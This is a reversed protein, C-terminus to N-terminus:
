PGTGDDHVGAPLLHRCATDASRFQPSYRGAEGTIGPVNGLNLQGQPGPDLMAIDHSRMCSAYRVLAPLAAAVAQSTGAQKAELAKAILHECAGLAARNQATAAPVAFELGAHGPRSVPDPVDLGHARLCRTFAVISRDSGPLTAAAANGGRANSSTSHGPLSAVGPGQGGAGCGSFFAGLALATLTGLCARTRLRGRQVQM